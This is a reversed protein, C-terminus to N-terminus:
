EGKLLKLITTRCNSHEYDYNWENSRVYKEINLLIENQKNVLKLNKKISDHEDIGQGLYDILDEQETNKVIIMTKKEEESM